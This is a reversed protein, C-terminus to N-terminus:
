KTVAIYSSVSNNYQSGLIDNEDFSCAISASIEYKGAPLILEKESFFKKYFNANPGDDTWGGSKVYDFKVIKGKELKTTMLIDNVIHGGGFYKDDKLSFGVLPDASYVVIDDEEGIYELTAYCNVIENHTYTDKGIYMTLEFIEDKLSVVIDSPKESEKIKTKGGCGASTLLIICFFLSILVHINKNM